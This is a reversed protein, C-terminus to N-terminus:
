LQSEQKSYHKSKLYTSFFLTNRCTLIDIWEDNDMQYALDVLDSFESIENDLCFQLIEKVIIRSDANSRKFYDETSFGGYTKIDQEKYQAKEPNDLHIMYRLMTRM